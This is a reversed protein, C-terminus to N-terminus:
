VGFSVTAPTLWNTFFVVSTNNTTAIINDIRTIIEISLVMRRAM